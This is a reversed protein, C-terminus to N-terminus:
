APVYIHHGSYGGIRKVSGKKLQNQLFANAASIKVNAQRSLEQVTFVKAGKIFNMAQNEDVIVSINTRQKQEKKDGKKQGGKKDAEATQSKEAQAPSQKKGGGM